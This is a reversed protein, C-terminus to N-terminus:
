FANGTARASGPTREAQVPVHTVSRSGTLLAAAQAQADVIPRPEVVGAFAGVQSAPRVGSLLAAAQAQADAMTSAPSPSPLHVADAKVGGSTHPRSLLAAAQAQADARIAPATAQTDAIAASTALILPILLLHRKM